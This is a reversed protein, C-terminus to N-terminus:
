NQRTNNTEVKQHFKTSRSPTFWPLSNFYTEIAQSEQTQMHGQYFIKDRLYPTTFVGPSM